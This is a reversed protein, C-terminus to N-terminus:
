NADMATGDPAIHMVADVQVAYLVWTRTAIISHHPNHRHIVRTSEAYWVLSWRRDIYM